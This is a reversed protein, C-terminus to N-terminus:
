GLDDLVAEAEDFFRRFYRLEGLLPRLHAGDPSPASEHGAGSHLAAAFGHSLRALVREREREVEGCLADIKAKDRSRAAERLSERHEMMTMLFEPPAPPETGEELSTGLRELLVEARRVPDRLVRWAENVEIARNLAARRETAPRGAYRDPHLARSLDRHRKGLESLDLAFAPEIQFIDFPDTVLGSVERSAV